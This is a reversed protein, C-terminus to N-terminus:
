AGSRALRAADGVLRVAEIRGARALARLAAKAGERRLVGLVLLAVLQADARLAEGVVVALRPHEEARHGLRLLAVDDARERELEALDLRTGIRVRM